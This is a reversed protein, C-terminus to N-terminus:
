AAALDERPLTIIFEAGVHRNNGVAIRGGHSEHHVQLHKKIGAETLQRLARDIIRDLSCPERDLVMPGAFTRLEEFLSHLRDQSSLIRAVYDLAETHEPLELALM